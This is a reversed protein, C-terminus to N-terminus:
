VGDRRYNRSVPLRDPCGGKLSLQFTEDRIPHPLKGGRFALNVLHGKHIKEFGHPALREQWDKLPGAVGLLDQCGVLHVRLADSNPVTCMYLIEAQPDVYAVALRSNGFRDTVRHQIEIIRPPYHKRVWDLAKSVKADDLPKLLYHAPHIDYCDPAYKSHATVFVIWPPKDLKIINHALDIGATKGETLITIDLFIGDVGGQEILGWGEATTEAEGIIEVDKHERRLIDKLEDRALFEDEILVVRQKILM